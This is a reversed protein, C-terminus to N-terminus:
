LQAEIGKFTGGQRFNYPQNWAVSPTQQQSNPPGSLSNFRDIMLFYIWTDRWDTPSPYPYPITLPRGNVLITKTANSRAATRASEIALQVAPDSIGPIAPQAPAATATAIPPTSTGM